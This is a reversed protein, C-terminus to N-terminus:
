RHLLVVPEAAWWFKNKSGEMREGRREEAKKFISSLTYCRYFPTIRGSEREREGKKERQPSIRRM